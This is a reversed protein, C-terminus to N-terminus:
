DQSEKVKAVPQRPCQTFQWGSIVAQAAKLKPKPYILNKM